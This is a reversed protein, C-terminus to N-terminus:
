RRSAQQAPKVPHVVAPLENHDVAVAIPPMWRLVSEREGSYPGRWFTHWHARRVHPRITARGTATGPDSDSHDPSDQAHRLAAGIRVGVDWTYPKDPAFLRLGRKTRKPTPRPPRTYDANESCLYLLLSMMPQLEKATRTVIEDPAKNPGGPKRSNAMIGDLLSGELVVPVGHLFADEPRECVSVMLWLKPHPDDAREYRLQAWFGLVPLGDM